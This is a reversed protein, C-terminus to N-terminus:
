TLGEFDGNVAMWFDIIRPPHEPSDGNQVLLIQDIEEGSAICGQALALCDKLSTHGTPYSYSITQNSGSDVLFVIMLYKM